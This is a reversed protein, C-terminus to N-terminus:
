VQILGGSGHSGSSGGTGVDNPSRVQRLLLGLFARRDDPESARVADVANKLRRLVLTADREFPSGLGKGAEAVVAKLGAAVREAAASAPRHEYIVGRSATEFTSALAEAAAAVDEDLLPQLEPAQYRNLFAGVLLFIDMQRRSFDRIFPALLRLDQAQRRM